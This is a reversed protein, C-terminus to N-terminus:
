PFRLGIRYRRVGTQRAWTHTEHDQVHRVRKARSKGHQNNRYNRRHHGRTVSFNNGKNKEINTFNISKKCLLRAMLGLSRTKEVDNLQVEFPGIDSCEYRLDKNDTARKNRIAQPKPGKPTSLENNVSADDGSSSAYREVNKNSQKNHNSTSKKKKGMEAEDKYDTPLGLAEKRLYRTKFWLATKSKM